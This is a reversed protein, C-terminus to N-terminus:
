LGITTAVALLVVGIICFVTIITVSATRLVRRYSQLGTDVAPVAVFFLVTLFVLWVFAGAIQYCANRLVFGIAALASAVIKIFIALFFLHVRPTARNLSFISMKCGAPYSVVNAEDPLM